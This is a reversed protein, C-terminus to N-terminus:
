ESARRRARWAASGRRRSRRPCSGSPRTSGRPAARRRRLLRVDDVAAHAVRHQELDEGALADAGLHHAGRRAGRRALAHALRRRPRRLAARHGAGLDDGEGVAVQERGVRARRQREHAALARADPVGVALLVEVEEGAGHDGVEAVAMRRTVRAMSSAPAVLDQVDGVQVVALRLRTSASSSHVCENASRTKRQLLPASALSAAIM